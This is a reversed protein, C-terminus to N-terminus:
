IMVSNLFANLIIGEDILQLGVEKGSKWQECLSKVIELRNYFNVHSAESMVAALETTCVSAKQFKEHQSLRCPPRKIGTIAISPQQLCESFLRQTSRYHESTWRKDCISADFLLIGLWKRLAFMHRCPLKM